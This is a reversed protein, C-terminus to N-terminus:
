LEVLLTKDNDFVQQINFRIEARDHCFVVRYQFLQHISPFGVSM